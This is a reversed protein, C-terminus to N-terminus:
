KRVEVNRHCGGDEDPVKIVLHRYPSWLITSIRCNCNTAESIWLLAIVSWTTVSFWTISQSLMLTRSRSSSRVLLHILSAIQILFDTGTKFLSSPPSGVTAYRRNKSWWVSMQHDFNRIFIASTMSVDFYTFLCLQTLITNLTQPNLRILLQADSDSGLSILQM